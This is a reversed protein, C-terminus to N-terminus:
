STRGGPGARHRAVGARWAALPYPALLWAALSWARRSGALPRFLRLAGTLLLSTTPGAGPPVCLITDAVYRLVRRDCNAVILARGQSPLAIYGHREPLLAAWAPAQAAPPSM